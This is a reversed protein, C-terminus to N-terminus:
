EPVDPLLRFKGGTGKGAAVASPAPPLQGAQHLPHALRGVHWLQNIILGGKAHVADTVKRWGEVQDQSFIGPAYPWETGQPSILTAESIILGAEARQAYYEANV